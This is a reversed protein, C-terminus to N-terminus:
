SSYSTSSANASYAHQTSAAKSHWWSKACWQLVTRTRSMSGKNFGPAQYCYLKESSVTGDDTPTAQFANSADFLFDSVKYSARICAMIKITTTLCVESFGTYISKDM